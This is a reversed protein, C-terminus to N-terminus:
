SNTTGFVELATNTIKVNIYKGRVLCCKKTLLTGHHFDKKKAEKVGFAWKHCKSSASPLIVKFVGPIHTSNKM